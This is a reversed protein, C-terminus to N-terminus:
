KQFDIEKMEDGGIKEEDTYYIFLYKFFFFQLIQRINEIM